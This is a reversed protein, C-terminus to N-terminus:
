SAYGSNFSACVIGAETSEAVGVLTVTVHEPDAWGIVTWLPFSEGYSEIYWARDDETVVTPLMIKAAEASEAIVVAKDYTDNGNNHNQTILYINM